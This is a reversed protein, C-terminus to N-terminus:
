WRGHDTCNSRAASALAVNPHRCGDEEGDGDDETNRM